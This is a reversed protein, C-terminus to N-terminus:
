HPHRSETQQSMAHARHLLFVVGLQLNPGASLVQRHLTVTCGDHATRQASRVAEITQRQTSRVAEITQRAANLMNGRHM